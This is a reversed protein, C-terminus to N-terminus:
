ATAADPAALRADVLVVGIGAVVGTLTPLGAVNMGIAIFGATLGTLLAVDWGRRVERWGAWWGSCRSRSSRPSSRCTSRSTSGSRPRRSSAAPSGRPWTPSSSWRCASCRTPACRTTASPRCRSPSSPATASRSCSRAAPDLRADRRAGGAAHGGRRQHAHGPRRPQRQGADEHLRRAAPDGRGGGDRQDPLHLDRGDPQDPFSAVIGALSALLIVEWSTRFYLAALLATYVWGVLGAVDASRRGWTMLLFILLVPSIALFVSM